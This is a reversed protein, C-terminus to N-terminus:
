ANPFLIRDELDGVRVVVLSKVRGEDGYADEKSANGAGVYDEGNIKRETNILGWTSTRLKTKGGRRRETNGLGPNNNNTRVREKPRPQRRCCKSRVAKPLWIFTTSRAAGCLVFVDWPILILSTVYLNDRGTDKAVQHLLNYATIITFTSGVAVSSIIANLYFVTRMRSGESGLPVNNSIPQIFLYLLAFSLLVNGVNFMWLLWMPVLQLCRGKPTLKGEVFGFALAVTLPVLAAIAIQCLRFVLQYRQAKIEFKGVVKAKHLLFTYAFLFGVFYLGSSFKALLHCQYSPMAQAFAINCVLGLCSLAAIGNMFLSWRLIFINRNRYQLGSEYLYEIFSAVEFPMTVGFVVCLIVVCVQMVAFLFDEEVEGAYEETFSPM